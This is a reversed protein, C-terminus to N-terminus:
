YLALKEAPIKIFSIRGTAKVADTETTLKLSIIGSNNLIISGEKNYVWEAPGKKWSGDIDNGGPVSNYHATAGPANTSGDNLNKPTVATGASWTGGLYIEGLAQATETKDINIRIYTIVMVDADSDNRLALIGYAGATTITRVGSYAQFAKKYKYAAYLQVPIRLASVTERREFNVLPSQGTAGDAFVNHM